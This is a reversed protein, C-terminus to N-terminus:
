ATTEKERLGVAHIFARRAQMLHDHVAEAAADGDGRRLARTMRELGALVISRTKADGLTLARIQQMHDAYQEIVRVLRENSVLGLWASRFRAHAEGFGKADGREHARRATELADEIPARLEPDTCHVAIRRLASPEILFRIEYIDDVDDLTLSPVTFSRGSLVLLGEGALRTLAERVPTRSVGLQQALQVEQLPRGAAILGDRLHSRLTRYVQDGLAPAREVPELTPVM